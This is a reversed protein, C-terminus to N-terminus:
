RGGTAVAAWLQRLVISNDRLDTVTDEFQVVGFPVEDSLWLVRRYVLEPSRDDARHRVSAVALQCRYADKRLPTKLYRVSGPRYEAARPLGTVASQVRMLQPDEAAVSLDRLFKSPWEGALFAPESISLPIAESPGSRNEHVFRIILLARKPESPNSAADRHLQKVRLRQSAGGVETSAFEIWPQPAEDTADPLSALWSRLPRSFPEVPTGYNVWRWRELVNQTWPPQWPNNHPMVASFVSVALAVEALRRFWRREAFEDLAPIMAVLWLPILWFAWRLGSSNGGYNYSQTQAVYFGMVWITCLFSLWVVKRGGEGGFLPLPRPHPALTESIQRHMSESSSEPSKAVRLWSLATLLFVPSLSWIGHHGITCHFLYVWMSLEGRDIGSPDTWYSPVGDHEYLYAATGFKAYVPTWEGVALWNTFLFAALPLAAAPAFCMWTRRPDRRLLIVFLALGFMCAPLENCVAFAGWAGAFVFRWASRDGDCVIRLTAATAFLVSAAAVTHNNFTVLFPTLLTGWAATFVLFVRAFETRAYREGLKGILWLSAVLPLWNVLLLLVRVTEHPRTLLDLGTARKVLWYAGAVLTPLLPPKSSYFHGGLKVKDITDWGPRQIIEDIEYTGREALSWVTAWRSTDNASFFPVDAPRREPWRDPSYRVTATLISALAQAAAVVIVLRSVTRTTSHECLSDSPATSM